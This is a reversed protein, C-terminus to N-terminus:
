GLYCCGCFANIWGKRCVCMCFLGCDQAEDSVCPISAAGSVLLDELGSILALNLFPSPMFPPPPPSHLVLSLLPSFRFDIIKMAGNEVDVPWSYVHGKARGRMWLPHWLRAMLSELLALREETRVPPPSASASAHAGFMHARTNLCVHWVLSALSGWQLQLAGFIARVHLGPAVHIIFEMRGILWDAALKAECAAM